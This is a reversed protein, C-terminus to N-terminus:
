LQTKRKKARSQNVEDNTEKEENGRKNQRKRRRTRTSITDGETDDDDGELDARDIEMLSCYQEKIHEQEDEDIRYLGHLRRFDTLELKVAKYQWFCEDHLYHTNKYGEEGQMVIGMRTTGKDIRKGCYFCSARNTPSKEVEFAYIRM